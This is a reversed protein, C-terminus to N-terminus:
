SKSLKHIRSCICQNVSRAKLTDLNGPGFYERKRKWGGAKCLLHERGNSLASNNSNLKSQISAVLDFMSRKCGLWREPEVRDLYKVVPSASRAVNPGEARTRRTLCGAPTLHFRRKSGNWRRSATNALFRKRGHGGMRRDRATAAGM